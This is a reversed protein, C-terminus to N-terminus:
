APTTLDAPAIAHVPATADAPAGVVQAPAAADAPAGTVPASTMPAGPMSPGPLSPGPAPPSPVDASPGQPMRPPQAAASHPPILMWAFSAILAVLFACYIWFAATVGTNITLGIQAAQAPSVGFQTPSTGEGVGILASIAQGAMPIIAGALLAAGLRIPRWLAAAAVVAVLAVMVAVDGVIVPAPNAFANGATLTQTAGAANHLVYRDWSPAFAIATGLAALMLMVVPGMDDGQPKGIGGASRLRFAMVSGAACALWGILGLVLGAGILHTGGSMVTGADAFFFGFTVISMGLGLLAGIRLRTGGLLILVASAAWAALYLVHPVLEAPQQALSAGGLYSPFLGAFGLVVGAALLGAAALAGASRGSVPSADAAPAPAPEDAAPGAFVPGPLDAPGAFAPGPASTQGPADAPGYVAPAPAPPPSVPAITGPTEIATFRSWAGSWGEPTPPWWELPQPQSSSAAWIGYFHEGRGIEYGAGRYSITVNERM